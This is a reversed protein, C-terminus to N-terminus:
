AAAPLAAAMDLLKCWRAQLTPVGDLEDLHVPRDGALSSHPRLFNYYTTFLVTLVLAGNHSPFGCAARLFAAFDSAFWYRSALCSISFCSPQGRFNNSRDASNQQHIVSLGGNPPNNM